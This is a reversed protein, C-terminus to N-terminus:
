HLNQKALRRIIRFLHNILIRSYTINIEFNFIKNSHFNSFPYIELIYPQYKGKTHSKKM